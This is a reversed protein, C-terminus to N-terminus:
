VAEWVKENECCCCKYSTESKNTHKNEVNEAIKVLEENMM